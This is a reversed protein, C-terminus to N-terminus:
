NKFSSPKEHGLEQRKLNAARSGSISARVLARKLPGYSKMLEAHVSAVRTVLDNSVIGKLRAEKGDKSCERLLRCVPEGKLHQCQEWLEWLPCVPANCRHWNPCDSPNVNHNTYNAGQDTSVNSVGQGGAQPKTKGPASM